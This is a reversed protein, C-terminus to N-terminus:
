KAASCKASFDVFRESLVVNTNVGGERQSHISLGYFKLKSMKQFTTSIKMPPTNIDVHHTGLAVVVGAIHIIVTGVGGVVGAGRGVTWAM